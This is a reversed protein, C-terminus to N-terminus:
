PALFVNVLNSNSDYVQVTTLAVWSGNQRVYYSGDSPADPIGATTQYSSDPFQVGGGNIYISPTSGGSYIALGAYSGDNYIGARFLSGINLEIANYNFSAENGSNTATVASTM